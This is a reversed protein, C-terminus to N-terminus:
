KLLISPNLNVSVWGWQQLKEAANTIGDGSLNSQRQVHKRTPDLLSWGVHWQVGSTHKGTLWVDLENGLLADGTPTRFHHITAGLAARQSFCPIRHDLRAGLLGDSAAGVYFHDMWGYFKHNTGLLPQFAASSGSGSLYDIGWRSSSGSDRQVGGDLVWMAATGGGDSFQLYAEMNWWRGKQPTWKWTGGATTLNPETLSAQDFVLLSYRHKGESLHGNHYAISRRTQAGDDWTVLASTMGRDRQLDLRVGDLFRGPNAWDAAGVIRANDMDVSMRGFTLNVKKTLPIRAWAEAAGTNSGTPGSLGGFARVDQLQVKFKLGNWGGHIGLRNRQITTMEGADEVRNALKYGDRWESRVRLQFDLALVTDSANPPSSQQATLLWPGCLCTLILFHRM